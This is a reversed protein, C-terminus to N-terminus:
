VNYVLNLEATSQEVKEADMAIPTSDSTPRVKGAPYWIFFCIWALILAGIFLFFSFPSESMPYFVLPALFATFYTAFVM